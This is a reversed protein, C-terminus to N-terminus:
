SDCQKWGAPYVEPSWVNANILSEYIYGQKDPFYVKDGINYADQAGTPQKWVPIDGPEAIEVYLSPAVDPTWDAQSTHAQLVKYLKGNYRLREGTDYQEGAKWSNFLEIADLADEDTLSMAAKVIRKRLEIARMISIM